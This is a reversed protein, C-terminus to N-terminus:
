KLARLEDQAIKGHAEFAMELRSNLWRSGEYSLEVAAQQGFARRPNTNGEGRAVNRKTPAFSESSLDNMMEYLSVGNELTGAVFEAGHLRVYRPFDEKWGHREREAPTADDKGEEYKKGIARGFVRIDNPGKTFWGMFIVAGTKVSRPRKRRPYCAVRVCDSDKILKATSKTLPLSDRRKGFFKVFAQSADAVAGPLRASPPAVFGVDTGHDRLCMSGSPTAGRLRHHDVIEAWEDVEGHRLDRGARNWLDDFYRRCEAIVAEDDAVMGFEYNRRLAAETLNASTIIARSTGFLYLKAHLNRVGRISAGADLLQRLAAADSVGEAFDALSFRTIVQISGSLHKRLLKIVGEKIFPCVIRLGSTEAKLAEEFEKQWGGDVLWIMM